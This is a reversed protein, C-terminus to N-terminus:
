KVSLPLSELIPVFDALPGPAQSGAGPSKGPCGAQTVLKCRGYHRFPARPAPLAGHM